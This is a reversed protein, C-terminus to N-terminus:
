KFNIDEIIRGTGYGGRGFLIAKVEDDDLMAQLDTLREEDTGSFYTASSGGLTKGIKVKYGWQQLTDICTQAKDESLYGAPCVIGITDGPQLYPPIKVMGCNVVSADYAREEDTGSALGKLSPASVAAILMSSLFRKRNM